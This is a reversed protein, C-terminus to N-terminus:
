GVLLGPGQRCDSSQSFLRLRMGHTCVGDEAQLCHLWHRERGILCTKIGHLYEM